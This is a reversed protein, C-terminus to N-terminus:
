DAVTLAMKLTKESDPNSFVMRIVYQGVDSPGPTGSFTLTGGNWTLFQPRSELHYQGSLGAKIIDDGISKSYPTNATANPLSISIEQTEKPPLVPPGIVTLLPFGVKTLLQAYEDALTTQIKESALFLVFETTTVTSRQGLAVAEGEVVEHLELGARHDDDVLRDWLDLSVTYLSESPDQPPRQICLQEISCNSPIPIDGYDKIKPLPLGPVFKVNNWFSDANAQYRNAREPDLRRLRQIVLNVKDTVSNNEGLSPLIGRLRQGYYFDLLRVSAIKRNEDRCVVSDGGNGVTDGDPIPPTSNRGCGAFLCLLLLRILPKM